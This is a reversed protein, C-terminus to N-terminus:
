AAACKPVFWVPCEARHLLEKSTDPTFLRRLWGRAHDGMVLLDAGLEHAQAVIGDAPNGAAVHLRVRDRLDDPVQDELLQRAETLREGIPEVVPAVHDVPVAALPHEEVLHLLHLEMPLHRALEFAYEAARFASPSFDTAVLVRTVTEGDPRLHLPHDEGKGEQITLVPCVCEELVREAVSAHEETSWGHSGLVLLDAPLEQAMRLLVLGLPCRTLTAECRLGDPIQALTEELRRHAEGEDEVQHRHQRAREWEWAKSWDASVGALNHLLVLRAGFTGCVEVALDLERRSLTSFDVPCLVTEIRM